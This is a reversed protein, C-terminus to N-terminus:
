LVGHGLNFIFPGPSFASLIADISRDLAAGGALLALPDLNGQVMSSRARAVGSANDGAKESHAGIRKRKASPRRRRPIRIKLWQASRGGSTTRDLGPRVAAVDPPLNCRDRVLARMSLESPRRM